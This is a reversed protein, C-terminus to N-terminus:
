ILNSLPKGEINRFWKFSINRIRQQKEKDSFAVVEVSATSFPLCGKIINCELYFAPKTQLNNSSNSKFINKMSDLFNDM